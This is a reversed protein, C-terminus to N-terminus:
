NKSIDHRLLCRWGTGSEYNKRPIYKSEYRGNRGAPIMSQSYFSIKVPEKQMMAVLLSADNQISGNKFKQETTALVDGSSCV